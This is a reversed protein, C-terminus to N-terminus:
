EDNDEKWLSKPVYGAISERARESMPILNVTVYEIEKRVCCVSLHEIDEGAYKVGVIDFGCYVFAAAVTRPSAFSTVPYFSNKYQPMGAAITAAYRAVKMAYNNAIEEVPFFVENHLPQINKAKYSDVRIKIMARISMVMMQFLRVRKEGEEGSIKGYQAEAATEAEGWCGTMSNVRIASQIALERAIPFHYIYHDRPIVLNVMKEFYGPVGTRM